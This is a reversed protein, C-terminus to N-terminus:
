DSAGGDRIDGFAATYGAQQFLKKGSVPFFVQDAIAIANDGSIRIVSIGGAARPTSIAAITKGIIDVIREPQKPCNHVCFNRYVMKKSFACVGISRLNKM